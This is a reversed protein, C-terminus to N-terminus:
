RYRKHIASYNSKNKIVTYAPSIIGRYCSYEIGGQFTRLSIVFDGEEVLKYSNTDGSPSMVDGDLM